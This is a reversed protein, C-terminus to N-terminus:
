FCVIARELEYFFAAFIPLLIVELFLGIIGISLRCVFTICVQSGALFINLSNNNTLLLHAVNPKDNNNENNNNNDDDDDDFQRNLFNQM